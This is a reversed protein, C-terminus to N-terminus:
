CRLNSLTLSHLYKPTANAIEPVYENAEDSKYLFTKFSEKLHYAYKSCRNRVNINSERYKVM